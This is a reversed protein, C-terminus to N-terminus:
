DALRAPELIGDVAQAKRSLMDVASANDFVEPMKNPEIIGNM